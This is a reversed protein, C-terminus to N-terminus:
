ATVGKPEEPWSTGTMDLDRLAQRYEAWAKKTVADLPSDPMQTWDSASLLRDRKRRRIAVREAEDITPEVAEPKGGVAAIGMGAAQAKMLEQWREESIEVADTPVRSDPNDIMRPRKGAKKEAATQEQEIQRAGHFLDSYFGGTSPSFYHKM